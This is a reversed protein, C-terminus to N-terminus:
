RHTNDRVLFVMSNTDGRLREIFKEDNVKAQSMYLRWYTASTDGHKSARNLATYQERSLFLFFPNPLDCRVITTPIRKM